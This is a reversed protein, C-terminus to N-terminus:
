AFRWSSKAKQAMYVCYLSSGTNLCMGAHFNNTAGCVEDFTFCRWSPKWLHPSIAPMPLPIEDASVIAEDKDKLEMYSSSISSSDENYKACRFFLSKFSYNHLLLKMTISRWICSCNNNFDHTEDHPNSDSQQLLSKQSFSHLSKAKHCMNKTYSTGKELYETMLLGM